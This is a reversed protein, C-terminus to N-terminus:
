HPVPRGREWGLVFRKVQHASQGMIGEGKGWRAPSLGHLTRFIRARPGRKHRPLLVSKLRHSKQLNPVCVLTQAV